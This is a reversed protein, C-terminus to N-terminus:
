VTARGNQFRVLIRTDMLLCQVVNTLKFRSGNRAPLSPGRLCGPQGDFRPSRSRRLQSSDQSGNPGFGGVGGSGYLLGGAGGSQDVGNVTVETPTNLWM